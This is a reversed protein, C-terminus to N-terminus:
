HSHIISNGSIIVSKKVRYIVSKSDWQIGVEELTIGSSHLIHGTDSGLVKM